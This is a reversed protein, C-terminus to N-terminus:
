SMLSLTQRCTTLALNANELLVSYADQKQGATTLFRLNRHYYDLQNYLTSLDKIAYERVKSVLFPNEEVAKFISETKWYLEDLITNLKPDNLAQQKERISALTNRGATLVLDAPTRPASSASSASSGSGYRRSDFGRSQRERAEERMRAWRAEKEAQTEEGQKPAPTYLERLSQIHEKQQSTMQPKATQSTQGFARAQRERAEERMRAWRAEKEAQTETERKPAPQSRTVPQASRTTQVPQTQRVPQPKPQAQVPQRPPQTETRTDPTNQRQVAGSVRDRIGDVTKAPLLRAVMKAYQYPAVFLGLFFSGMAYFLGRSVTGEFGKGSARRAGEIGDKLARSGNRLRERAFLFGGIGLFLVIVLLANDSGATSKLIVFFLIYFIIALVATLGKRNNEM